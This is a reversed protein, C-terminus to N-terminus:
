MNPDKKMLEEETFASPPKVVAFFESCNGPFQHTGNLYSNTVM